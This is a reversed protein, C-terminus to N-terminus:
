LQKVAGDISATPLTVAMKTTQKTTSFSGDVLSCDNAASDEKLKYTNPKAGPSAVTGWTAAGDCLKSATGSNNGSGTIGSSTYGLTSPENDVAAGDFVGINMVKESNTGTMLWGVGLCTRKDAAAGKFCVGVASNAVSVEAEETLVVEAYLNKKGATTAAEDWLAVEMTGKKVDGIDLLDLKTSVKAATALGAVATISFARM